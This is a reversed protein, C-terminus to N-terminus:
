KAELETKEAVRKFSGVHNFGAFVKGENLEADYSWDLYSSMLHPKIAKWIDDDGNITVTKTVKDRGLNTFEFTGRMPHIYGVVNSM